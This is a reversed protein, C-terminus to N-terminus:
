RAVQTVKAVLGELRKLPQIALENHLERIRLSEAFFTECAQKAFETQIEVAKHLSRVGTLQDFYSRTQEFSKRTYDGYANAITQLSVPAPGAGSSVATGVPSVDTSTTETSTTLTDILEKAAQAGIPAADTTAVAASIEKEVELADGPVAEVSALTASTPEVVEPADIPLAEEISTVGIVDQEQVDQAAIALAETSVAETSIAETSVATALTPESQEQTQDQTLEQTEQAAIASASAILADIQQKAAQLQDAKQDPKPGQKQEHKRNRKDAKRNRQAPKGNPRKEDTDPVIPDGSFDFNLNGGHNRQFRPVQTANM